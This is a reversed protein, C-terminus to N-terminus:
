GEFDDLISYLERLDKIKYDPELVDPDGFRDVLVSVLGANRAGAVDIEAADGVYMSESPKSKLSELSYEFIEKGPKSRGIEGSIMISDFYDQLDFKKIKEWQTLRPGNTLLGKKVSLDRLVVEADPYLTANELSRKRYREALEEALGRDGVVLEFVPVRTDVKNNKIVKEFAEHYESRTIGSLGLEELCENMVESKSRRSGLITGDLDFLVAM